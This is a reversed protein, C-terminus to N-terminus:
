TTLVGRGTCLGGDHQLAGDSRHMTVGSADLVDVCHIVEDTCVAKGITKSPVLM